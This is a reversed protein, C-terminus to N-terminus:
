PEVEHFAPGPAFGAFVGDKVLLEDLQGDSDYCLLRQGRQLLGRRLLTAVVAEADNTVTLHKGWPGVDKIVLFEARSFGGQVIDYNASQGM